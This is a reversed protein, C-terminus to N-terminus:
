GKKSRPSPRGSGRKVPDILADRTAPDRHAPPKPDDAIGVLYDMSVNCVVAIRALTEPSPFSAGNVIRSMASSSVNAIHALTKQETTGAQEYFRQLFKAHSILDGSM